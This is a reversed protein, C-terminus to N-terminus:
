GYKRLLSWSYDFLKCTNLYFIIKMLKEPCFTQHLIFWTLFSLLLFWRLSTQSYLQHFNAKVWWLLVRLLRWSYNRTAGTLSLLNKWCRNRRLPRQPHSFLHFLSMLGNILREIWRNHSSLQKRLAM